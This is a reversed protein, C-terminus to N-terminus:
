VGWKLFFPSYLLLRCTSEPVVHLKKVATEGAFQICQQQASLLIMMWYTGTQPSFPTKITLLHYIPANIKQWFEDQCWQLTVCLINVGDGSISCCIIETRGGGGGGEGEGWLFFVHSLFVVFFIWVFIVVFHWRHTILTEARAKAVISSHLVMMFFQTIGIFYGGSFSLPSLLFHFSRFTLNMFSPSSSLSHQKCCSVCEFHLCQRASHFIGIAGGLVSRRSGGTCIGMPLMLINWNHSGGFLWTKRCPLPFLPYPTEQTCCLVSCFSLSLLWPSMHSFFFCWRPM